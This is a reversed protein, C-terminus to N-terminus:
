VPIDDIKAQANAYRALVFLLDSLRNIYALALDSIQQQKSLTVLSREARRAITRAVHLNAALQSGGPLIFSTQPALKAQLQDITSELAEVTQVSLKDTDSVAFGIAFLERQCSQLVASIQLQDDAQTPQTGIISVVLGLYANLEDLNGYCDLIANDKDYREVTSTYVATTGKDGMKTYIKM